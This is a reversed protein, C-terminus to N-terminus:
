LLYLCTFLFFFFAIHQCFHYSRPVIPWSSIQVPSPIKTRAHSYIISNYFSITHQLFFHKPLCPLIQKSLFSLFFNSFIHFAMSESHTQALSSHASSLPIIKRMCSYTIKAVHSSFTIRTFFFTGHSAEHNKPIDQHHSLGGLNDFNPCQMIKLFHANQQYYHSVFWKLTKPPYNPRCIFTTKTKQKPSRFHRNRSKAIAAQWFKASFLREQGFFM